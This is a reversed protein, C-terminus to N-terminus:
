LNKRNEKMEKTATALIDLVEVTIEVMKDTMAPTLPVRTYIDLRTFFSHIRGFIDVLIEESAAVDKAALLLVGVGAFVVKAPAFVQRVSMLTPDSVSPKINALGVGEGLTASFAYLVNVTPVFWEKLRDGIPSPGLQDAQFAALIAGPSDCKEFQKFLDHQKLDQKTKKKYSKLATEFIGEINSSSAPMEAPTQSISSSAPHQSM